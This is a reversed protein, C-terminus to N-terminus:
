VNNVILVHFVIIQFIINYHVRVIRNFEFVCFMYRCRQCSTFLLSCFMLACCTRMPFSCRPSGSGTTPRPYRGPRRPRSGRRSASSSPARPPEQWRSSSARPPWRRPTARSSVAPRSSPSARGGPFWNIM